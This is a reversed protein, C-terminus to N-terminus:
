VVPLQIMFETGEGEKTEVKIEGGHAKVIDYSLSLGLGTGSGAPKTTFFPQFIKEVINKPIGNGNDNVKIEVKNNIKKTSVFVTPVYEDGLAQQLTKKENVAYFANNILNLIVRGIDQPVVNIKPLSSDFDTKFEANFTKDKARLGHYSLRLYEDCLANIDTPEKQGESKRSHQLMGKVIDGARKGHHNIKEFNEIVDNILDDKLQEDQEAKPKLREAKLEELMEKNVESFNNVFTLPNQIEHAIGATLEGLSAMKESHILQKQTSKLEELSKALESTRERVDKELQIKQAAILESREKEKDIAQQANEKQLNVYRMMLVRVFWLVLWSFCILGLLWSNEQVFKFFPASQGLVQSFVISIFSLFFDFMLPLVGISLYRFALNDERIYLLTTILILLPVVGLNVIIATLTTVENFSSNEFNILYTLLGIIGIMMSLLATWFLIKDWAPYGAKINYFKRVFQILFFHVFVWPILSFILPGWWAFAPQYWTAFTIAINHLNTLLITITFLAFWLYVQEKVVRYFFLSILFSLFMLGASFIEYINSEQFIDQRSEVYEVYENMIKENSVYRVIIKRIENKVLNRRDYIIVEEGSALELPIAGAMYNASKLGDRESWKRLMGSRYHSVKRNQRIIYVDFFDAPSILFLKVPHQLTNKLKYRQWSTHSMVPNDVQLHFKGSLPEASVEEFSWKGETDELKQWYISDLIQESVTETRIEFTPLSNWQAVINQSALLCCFFLLVYSKMINNLNFKFFQNM